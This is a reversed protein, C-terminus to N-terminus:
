DLNLLLFEYCALVVALEHFHLHSFHYVGVVLFLRAFLRSTILEWTTTTSIKRKFISHSISFNRPKSVTAPLLCLHCAFCLLGFCVIFANHSDNLSLLLRKHFLQWAFYFSEDASLALIQTTAELLKVLGHNTANRIVFWIFWMFATFQFAITAIHM